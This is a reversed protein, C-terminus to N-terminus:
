SNYICFTRFSMPGSMKNYLGPLLFFKPCINIYVTHDWSHLNSFSLLSFTQCHSSSPLVIQFLKLIRNRKRRYKFINYYTHIMNIMLVFFSYVFFPPFNFIRGNIYWKSKSFWLVRHTTICMWELLRLTSFM